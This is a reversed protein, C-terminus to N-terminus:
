FLHAGTNTLKKQKVEIDGVLDLKGSTSVAEGNIRTNSTGSSSVFVCLYRLLRFAWAMHCHHTLTRDWQVMKYCHLAAQLMYLWIPNIGLVATAARNFLHYQSKHVGVPKTCSARTTVEKARGKQTGSGLIAYEQRM